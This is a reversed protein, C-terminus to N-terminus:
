NARQLLKKQNQPLKQRQKPLHKRHRHLLSQLHKRTETNGCGALLTTAMAATILLSVFKKKM